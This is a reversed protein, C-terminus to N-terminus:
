KAFDSMFRYPYTHYLSEFLIEIDILRDKSVDIPGGSDCVRIVLIVISFSTTRRRRFWELYAHPMISTLM